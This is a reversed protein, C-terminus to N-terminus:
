LGLLVGPAKKMRAPGGPLPRDHVQCRGTKKKPVPLWKESRRTGAVAASLVTM